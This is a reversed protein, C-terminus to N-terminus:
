GMALLGWLPEHQHKCQHQLMFLPPESVPATCAPPSVDQVQDRLYRPPAARKAKAATSVAIGSGKLSSTFNAGQASLSIQLRSSGAVLALLSGAAGGEARPHRPIQLGLDNCCQLCGVPTTTHSTTPSRMLEPVAWFEPRRLDRLHETSKDPHM